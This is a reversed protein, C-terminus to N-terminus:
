QDQEDKENSLALKIMRNMLPGIIWKKRYRVLLYGALAYLVTVSLYGAYEHGWLEALGHALAISVFLFALLFFPLIIMFAIMGSVARSTKEIARLRVLKQRADLYERVDDFLTEFANKENKLM